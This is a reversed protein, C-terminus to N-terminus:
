LLSAFRHERHRVSIRSVNGLQDAEIDSPILFDDHKPSCHPLMPANVHSQKGDTQKTQKSKNVKWLLLWRCRCGRRCDKRQYSLWGDRIGMINGENGLRAGRSTHGISSMTAVFVSGEETVNGRTCRWACDWLRGSMRYVITESHRGSGFCGFEVRAWGNTGSGM